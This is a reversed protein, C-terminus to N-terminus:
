QWRRSTLGRFSTLRETSRWTGELFTYLYLDRWFTEYVMFEFVEGKKEEEEKEAGSILSIFVIHLEGDKDHWLYLSFM